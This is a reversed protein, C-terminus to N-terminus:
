SSRSYESPPSRHSSKAGAPKQDHSSRPSKALAAKYIGATTLSDPTRPPRRKEGGSPADVLLFINPLAILNVPQRWIGIPHNNDTAAAAQWLYALCPLHPLRILALSHSFSELLKIEYENAGM